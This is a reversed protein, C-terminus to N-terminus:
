WGYLVVTTSTTTRLMRETTTVDQTNTRGNTRKNNSYPRTATNFERRNSRAAAIAVQPLSAATIITATQKTQSVVLVITNITSSRHDIIRQIKKQSRTPRIEGFM